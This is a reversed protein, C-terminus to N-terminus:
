IRLFEALRSVDGEFTLLHESMMEYEFQNYIEQRFAMSKTVLSLVQIFYSKKTTDRVFCAVGVEKVQWKSQNPTPVLLKVVATALTQLLSWSNAKIGVKVLKGKKERVQRGKGLIDFVTQNEERSLLLSPRNEPPAKGRTPPPNEPVSPLHHNSNAMNDEIEEFDYDPPIDVDAEFSDEFSEERERLVEEEPEQSKGEPNRYFESNLVTGRNGKPSPSPVPSSQSQTPTPKSFRNVVFGDVVQAQGQPGPGGSGARFSSFKPLDRRGFTSYPNAHAAHAQQFSPKKYVFNAPNYTFYTGNGAINRASQPTKPTTPVQYPNQYPYPYPYQQAVGNVPFSAGFNRPVTSFGFNDGGRGDKVQVPVPSNKLSSRSM